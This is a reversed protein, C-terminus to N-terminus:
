CIQHIPGEYELIEKIASCDCLWFLGSGWLFKRNQSIAWRGCGAKGIFSYYHREHATCSHSDFNCIGDSCLLALSRQSAISENPQMLIWGMGVGAWDTKLFCPKSSYYCALYPSSTTGLKLKDWLSILPADM